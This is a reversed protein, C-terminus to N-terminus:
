TRLLSRFARGALRISEPQHGPRAKWTIWADARGSSRMNLVASGDRTDASTYLGNGVLVVDGPQAASDARQLTRWATVPTRGASGDNGDGAV